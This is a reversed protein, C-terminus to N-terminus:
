PNEKMEALVAQLLALRRPDNSTEIVQRAAQKLPELWRLSSEMERLRTRLDALLRNAETAEEANFNSDRQIREAKDRERDLEQALAFYDDPMTFGDTEWRYLADEHAGM